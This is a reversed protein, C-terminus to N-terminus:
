KTAEDDDLAGTRLFGALRGCVVVSREAVDCVALLHAALARAGALSLEANGSLGVLPPWLGDATDLPDGELM